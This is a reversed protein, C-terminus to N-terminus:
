LVLCNRRNANKDMWQAASCQITPRHKTQRNGSCGAREQGPKVGTGPGQLTQNHEPDKSTEYGAERCGKMMDQKRERDMRPWWGQRVFCVHWAKHCCVTRPEVARRVMIHQLDGLVGTRTVHDPPKVHIAARRSCRNVTNVPRVAIQDADIMVARNTQRIPHFEVMLACQRQIHPEVGQEDAIVAAHQDVLRCWRPDSHAIHILPDAEVVGRRKHANVVGGGAAGLDATVGYISPLLEYTGSSIKDLIGRLYGGPNYVAGRDHKIAVVIMSLAAAEAGIQLRIRHYIEPHIRREEALREGLRVIDGWDPDAPLQQQMERPLRPTLRYLRLKATVDEVM